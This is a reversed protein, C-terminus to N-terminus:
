KDSRWDSQGQLGHFHKVARTFEYTIEQLYAFAEKQGNWAIQCAEEENDLTWQHKEGLDSFDKAVPIYHEWPRMRKHYCLQSEQKSRFVLSGNIHKNITGWSLENGPIDPYFRFFSFMEEPVEAKLIQNQKCFSLCEEYTDPVLQVLGTLKISCSKSYKFRVATKVRLLREFSHLSQDNMTGTSRGRWFLISSLQKWRSRFESLSPPALHKSRRLRSAAQFSYLDPILLDHNTSDMSLRDPDGRDGCEFVTYEYDDRFHRFYKPAWAKLCAELRGHLATNPMAALDENIFVLLMDTDNEKRCTMALTTPGIIM